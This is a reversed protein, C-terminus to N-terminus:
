RKSIKRWDEPAQFKGAWMGVRDRKAQEEEDVYNKSYRRFAVAWGSRVLAVNLNVEGAFCVALLRKYRDTGKGDCSVERNDIAQRLFAASTVGCTYDQNLGNACTQNKEPADIGFLRISTRGIRITDGDLVIAAGTITPESARAPTSFVCGVFLLFALRFIAKRPKSSV